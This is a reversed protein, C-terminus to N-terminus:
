DKERLLCARPVCLRAREHCCDFERHVVDGGCGAADHVHGLDVRGALACVGRGRRREDLRQERVVGVRLCPGEMNVREPDLEERARLALVQEGIGRLVLPLFRQRVDLETRPPLPHEALDRALEGCPRSPIPLLFPLQLHPQIIDEGSEVLELRKRVQM